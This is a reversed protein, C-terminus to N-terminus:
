PIGLLNLFMNKYNKLIQEDVLLIFLSLSCPEDTVTLARVGVGVWGGLARREGDIRSTPARGEGDRSLRAREREKDQQDIFVSLVLRLASLSSQPPLPATSIYLIIEEVIEYLRSGRVRLPQRSIALVRCLASVM